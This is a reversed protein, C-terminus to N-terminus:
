FKLRFSDKALQMYKVILDIESQSLDKQDSMFCMVKARVYSQRSIYLPLIELGLTDTSLELYKDLFAKALEKQENVLLDMMIYAVDYMVDANKFSDNFEICDFLQIQGKFYCINKLHCDGHCARIKGTKIRTSFLDKKIEFFKNTLSQIEFYLNSPFIKDTYQRTQEFNEDFAIRVNELKGFESIEESVKVRQHYNFLTEVLKEIDNTTLKQNVLLNYFLQSEGFRRMKVLYEVVVGNKLFNYNEGDFFVPIVELYLDKAGIQNLEIELECYKKRLEVTRYDLFGFYVPKKLKYAFQANLFVVSAHTEVMSVVDTDNQKLSTLLFENLSM